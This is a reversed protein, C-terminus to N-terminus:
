LRYGCDPCFNETGQLKFGCLLCIGPRNYSKFKRKLENINKEIEDPTLIGKIYKYSCYPCINALFPISRECNPCIINELIIKDEKFIIYFSDIIIIIIGFVTLFFGLYSIYNYDQSHQYQYGLGGVMSIVLGIVFVVMGIVLVKNKM